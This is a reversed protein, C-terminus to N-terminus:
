HTAVASQSRYAEAFVKAFDELKTKELQAPRHTFYDAAMAGSHLSHNMEVYNKAVEEPLGAAKM